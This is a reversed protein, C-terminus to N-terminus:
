TNGRPQAGTKREAEHEAGGGEARGLEGALEFGKKAMIVAIVENIVAAAAITGQILEACDPAPAALASVAIGTFLLSVGSHPLLTLGLYKRVTEPAHSMAAGALAGFYKGLARSIIYVATYIGAGFVLHYDLPAGLGLIIVLMCLGIAPQMASMIGDLQAGDILNAFATSFAMGLLLFNLAPLPLVASNLWLGLAATALLMALMVCLSAARGRLRRLLLGAAAGTVAGILVPLFVLFLIGAVSVEAESVAATVGAMVLFFVLAAVLDDLVAMPILTGTVPGATKMEAVISLSPAPATALAIGGFVLALYLPTGTFAFIAAFVAAVCVFTGLSEALTMVVIQAGSRRMRKWVLETGIMLGATCEMVSEAVNYWEADLLAQDVLGLAHPGLVMGTLLWGLIAPLKLKSVLKGMLYAAAVALLLRLLEALM